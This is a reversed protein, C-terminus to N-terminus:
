TRLARNDCGLARTQPGRRSLMGPTISGGDVWLGRVAEETRAGRHKLLGGARSSSAGWEAANRGRLRGPAGREPRPRTVEHARGPYGGTGSRAGPNQELCSVNNSLCGNFVEPSGSFALSNKSYFHCHIFNGPFSAVPSSKIIGWKASFTLKTCSLRPSAEM